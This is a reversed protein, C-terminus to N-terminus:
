SSSTHPPHRLPYGYRRKATKARRLAPSNPACGKELISYDIVAAKGSTIASALRAMGWSQATQNPRSGSSYYAGEGKRVIQRLAKRSCRTAKALEPSPSIKAVRYMETARHVHGSPRSRFSRVTPRKVYQGRKYQARSRRLANAQKTRDKRTLIRPLYRLPFQSMKRNSQHLHRTIYFLRFM